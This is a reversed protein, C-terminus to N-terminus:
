NKRTLLIFNKMNKERSYMAVDNVHYILNSIEKYISNYIRLMADRELEELMRELQCIEEDSLKDKFTYLFDWITISNDQINTVM